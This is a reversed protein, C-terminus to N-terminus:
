SLHARPFLASQQSSEGLKALEAKLTDLGARLQPDVAIIARARARSLSSVACSPALFRSVRRAADHCRCRHFGEGTGPVSGVIQPWLRGRAHSGCEAPARAPPPRRAAPPPRRAAPPPRRASPLRCACTQFRGYDTADDKPPARRLGAFAVLNEDEEQEPPPLLLLRVPLAPAILVSQPPPIGLPRQM